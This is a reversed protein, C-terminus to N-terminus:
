FPKAEMLYTIVAVVGCMAWLIPALIKGPLAPPGAAAIRRLQKRAVGHLAGLVLFLGFSVRVWALEGLAGHTLYITAAGTALVLLLSVAVWRMLRTTREVSFSGATTTSFALASLPGLGLISAIVHLAVLTSYLNM